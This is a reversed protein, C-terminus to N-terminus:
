LRGIVLRLEKAFGPFFQMTLYAGLILVVGTVVMFGYHFLYGTQIKQFYGGLKLAM